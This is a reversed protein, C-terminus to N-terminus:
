GGELRSEGENVPPDREDSGEGGFRGHVVQADDHLECGHRVSLGRRDGGRGIELRRAGV